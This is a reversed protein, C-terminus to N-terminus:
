PIGPKARDSAFAIRLGDPTWVPLNSDGNGFTLRSTTDRESEYVWIDQRNADFLDFALRRGDPSLRITSHQGPLSRLPATKGDPEMWFVASELNTGQGSVYLLTGSSSFAIQAAARGNSSVGEVAPVPTGTMQLRDVDFPTAFLTGSHVYMLYGGPLYRGFLGGQQVIKREGTRLSQVMINAGYFNYVNESETFLVAKGGQLVQPWRHTVEGATPNLKILESPTGGSESVRLVGSTPSPVFVINGDEGWDGGRGL